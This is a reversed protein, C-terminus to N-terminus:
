VSNESRWEALSGHAEWEPMTASGFGELHVSATQIRGDVIRLFLEEGRKVYLDPHNEAAAAKEKETLHSLGFAYHHGNRECHSVNLAGLAAFDQHLPILSMNSLDEGTLFAERGATEEFHACLGLNLLSKIVGKCNKHSTGSYGIEFARRFSDVTGDAEDIVLQKKRRIREIVPKTAPDLTLARALPQEVFLTHQFLGPQGSEFQDVFTEFAAIDTYAENGDLTIAVEPIRSMVRDWMRALRDLDAGTNGSIKVKFYRLGDRQAYEELTEPEGDNIRQDATWDGEDIPDSHGVTHRIFFDSRPIPPLLNEIRFGTLAPHIEGPEIGFGNTRVMEFFPKDELRCLADLIAREFLAEAYAGMLDEANKESALSKVETVAQRWLAFFSDFSQGADLWIGRAGEVLDLLLALKEDPDPGARKDLWGFSPRDGSCGTASGGGDSSVVSRVLLIASPRRNKTAKAEGDDGSKGISFSMRDPPMRRVFLEISEIHYAM